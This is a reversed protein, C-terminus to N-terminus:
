PGTVKIRSLRLRNQVEESEPAILPKRSLAAIHRIFMLSSDPTALLYNSVSWRCARALPNLPSILWGRTTHDASRVEGSKWSSLNLSAMALAADRSTEILVPEEDSTPAFWFPTSPAEVKPLDKRSVSLSVQEQGDIIRQILEFHQWGIESETKGQASTKARDEALSRIAQDWRNGVQTAVTVAADFELSKSWVLASFLATGVAHFQIPTDECHNTVWEMLSSQFVLNEVLRPHIRHYDFINAFRRKTETVCATSLTGERTWTERVANITSDYFEDLNHQTHFTFVDWGTKRAASATRHRITRLADIENLWGLAITEGPFRNYLAPVVISAPKPTRTGQSWRHLRRLASAKWRFGSPSAKPVPYIRKKWAARPKATSKAVFDRHIVQPEKTSLM